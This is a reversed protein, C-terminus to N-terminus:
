AGMRGTAGDGRVARSSTPTLNVSADLGHRGDQAGPEIGGDRRGIARGHELGEGLDVAEQGLDDGPAAAAIRLLVGLGDGTVAAAALEERALADVEQEIAARGEELQTWEGAPAGVIWEASADDCADASHM